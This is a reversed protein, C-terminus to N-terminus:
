KNKRTKVESMIEGKTRFSINNFDANSILHRIIESYSANNKLSMNRIKQALEKTIFVLISNKNVKGKQKANLINEGKLVLM